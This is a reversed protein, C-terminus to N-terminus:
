IPNSFTTSDKASGVRGDYRPGTSATIGIPIRVSLGVSSTCSVSSVLFRVDGNGSAKCWVSKTRSGKGTGKPREAV